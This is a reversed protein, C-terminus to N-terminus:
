HTPEQATQNFTVLSPKPGSLDVVSWSGTTLRMRWSVLDDTGLTWAIAAKIPSVHSVVVVRDPLASEVLQDLASRVRMGLEILTEGNPPRLGLDGRWRAWTERPVDSMPRGDWDGYDLEIWRDDTVLETANLHRATEQARLLPSAIVLDVPGIAAAAAAAQRHGEDDLPNDARGQLLGGANSVTRGHRLLTLTTM